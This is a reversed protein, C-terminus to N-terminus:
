GARPQERTECVPFGHGRVVAPGRGPPHGRKGHAWRSFPVTQVWGPGVVVPHKIVVLQGPLSALAGAPIVRGVPSSWDGAPAKEWVWVM